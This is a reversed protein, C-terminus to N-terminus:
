KLSSKETLVSTDKSYIGLHSIHGTLTCLSGLYNLSMLHTSNLLHMENKTRLTVCDQKGHEKPECQGQLEEM